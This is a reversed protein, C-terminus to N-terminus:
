SSRRSKGDNTAAAANQPHHPALILTKGEVRWGDLKSLFNMGLVDLNGLGPSTVVHLNRAVINGITLEDITGTKAPAAGNATRLVVPALGAGTEVHATRATQDSIATLTAGSDVLMRREVGNISARVWFHGDAAMPVRLEKGVVQQSDLGLKESIRALAPQYPAQEFLVFFFFALVALSFGFRIIKGLVPVRSLIMLVLAALVAYIAITQWEAGNTVPM